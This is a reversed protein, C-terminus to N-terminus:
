DTRKQLITEIKKIDEPLDVGIGANEVEALKIKYGNDLWRLQELKESLENQTPRLKIIKMLIDAAYGYLGIHLYFPLGPRVNELIRGFRIAYGNSDISVKVKNPNNIATKDESPYVLSGIKVEEDKFLTILKNIHDADVLPEDGQINIICDYLENVSLKELVEACRDTGSLHNSNTMLVKGGFSEVCNFIDKHDTAVILESLLDAKLANKYVWQIMPKGQILALPKGPFRTSGYRAPIIGLTKM